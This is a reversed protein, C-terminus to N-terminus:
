LFSNAKMFDPDRATFKELYQGAAINEHITVQKQPEDFIPPENVDEVIVNVGYTSQGSTMAGRQTKLTWLSTTRRRVVTCSFYPIANHATVTMTQLSGM